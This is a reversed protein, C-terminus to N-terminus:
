KEYAIVAFKDIFKRKKDYVEDDAAVLKLADHPCVAVCQPEKLGIDTCMECKHIYGQDNVNIAGFPCVKVCTRCHFCKNYDIKIIHTKPDRSIAEVPCASIPLCDECQFCYVPYNYKWDYHIIDIRSNLPNVEDSNAISCALICLKCNMCKEPDAKIIKKDTM